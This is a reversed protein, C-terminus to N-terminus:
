ALCDQTIASRRHLLSIPQPRSASPALWRIEEHYFLSSRRKFLDTILEDSLPEAKGRPAELVTMYLTTDEHGRFHQWSCVVSCSESDNPNRWDKGATSFVLLRTSTLVFLQGHDIKGPKIDLIWQADRIPGLCLDIETPQERSTDYLVATRRNAVFLRSLTPNAHTLWCIKHWGDHYPDASAPRRLGQWTYLKGFQLLQALTATEAHPLEQSLQWISWNGHEDVIALCSPDSPHFSVDAHPHRGTRTYPIIAVPNLDLLSSGSRRKLTSSPHLRHPVPKPRYLPQFLMTSSSQRAAMWMSHKSDSTAFCIQQVEEGRGTWWAEGQDSLCPVEITAQNVNEVARTVHQRGVRVLRISEGGVGCVSAAVPITLDTSEVANGGAFSASGFALLTSRTTYGQPSAIHGLGLASKPGTSDSLHERLSPLTHLTSNAESEHESPDEDLRIPRSPSTLSTDQGIVTFPFTQEANSESSQCIQRLFIWEKTGEVYEATGPHGHSILATSHVNELGKRRRTNAM